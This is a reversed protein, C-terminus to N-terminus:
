LHDWVRVRTETMPEYPSAKNPSWCLLSIWHQTSPPTHHVFTVQGRCSVVWLVTICQLPWWM